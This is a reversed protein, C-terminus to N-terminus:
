PCQGQKFARVTEEDLFWRWNGDVEILHLTGETIDQDGILRAEVARTTLQGVEPADWIEDHERMVEVRTWPISQDAQCNIFTGQAVVAQLAPHLSTWAAGYDGDLFQRYVQEAAASAENDDGDDSGCAALGLAISVVVILGLWRM